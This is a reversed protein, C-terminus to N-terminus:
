LFPTAKRMPLSATSVFCSPKACKLPPCKWPRIRFIPMGLSRMWACSPKPVKWPPLCDIALVPWPQADQKTAFGVQYANAYMELLEVQEDGYYTKLDFYAKAVRRDAEFARRTRVIIDALFGMDKGVVTVENLQVSAPRLRVVRYLAAAEAAWQEVDYGMVACRLSDGEMGQVQYYGDANSLAGSQQTINEILAYPLAEGTTNDVVRGEYRLMASQALGLTACCWGLLM